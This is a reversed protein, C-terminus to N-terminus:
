SWPRQRDFTLNKAYPFRKPHANPMKNYTRVQCISSNLDNNQQDYHRNAPSGVITKKRFIMSFIYIERGVVLNHYM